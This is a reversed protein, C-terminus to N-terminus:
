QIISYISPTSPLYSGEVIGPLVGANVGKSGWIEGWRGISVNPFNTGLFPKWYHLPMLTKSIDHKIKSLLDVRKFVKLRTQHGLCCM